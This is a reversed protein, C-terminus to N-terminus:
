HAVIPVRIRSKEWTLTMDTGLSTEEFGITLAEHVPVDHDVRADVRLVDKSGDYSFAGWEGVGSSLIVTWTEEGPITYLAYTGAPLHQGGFMVDSSFTIETSENAGTRWVEGFPVLEGFITRTEGTEPHRRQPSSYHVKVYTDGINAKALMLPSLRPEPAPVPDQQARAPAVIFFLAALLLSIRM